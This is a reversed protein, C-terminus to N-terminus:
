KKNKEELNLKSSLLQMFEPSNYDMNYKTAYAQLVTGLKADREKINKTSQMNTAAGALQDIGTSIAGQKAAKAAKNYQAVSLKTNAEQAGLQSLIQAREGGYQNEMNQKRALAEGDARMRTGALANYNSLLNGASPAIQKINRKGTQYALENAALEPEVNYKRNKISNLVAQRYPNAYDSYKMTDEKGFLGQYINYAAPALQAATALTDSTGYKDWQRGAWNKDSYGSPNEDNYGYSNSLRPDNSQQDGINKLENEPVIPLHSPNPGYWPDEYTSFGTMGKSQAWQQMASLDELGAGKSYLSYELGDTGKEYKTIGGKAFKKAAKANAKAEQEAVLQSFKTQVKNIMLEASGKNVTSANDTLQKNYKDYMQKLKAGAEKFKKDKNYMELKGLIETGEPLNMQVGGQAHTPANDSVKHIAGDPTRFPEGKELEANPEQVMGGAAYIRKSEPFYQQFVDSDVMPINYVTGTRKDTYARSRRTLVGNTDTDSIGFMEGGNFDTTQGNLTARVNGTDPMTTIYKPKDYLVMDGATMNTDKGFTKHMDAYTYAIDRYKDGKAVSKRSVVGGDPYMMAPKSSLAANQKKNIRTNIRALQENKSAEIYQKKAEEEEKDNEFVGAAGPLFASVLRESTSYDNSLAVDLNRAPDLFGTEISAAIDNYTSNEVTGDKKYDVGSELASTGLQSVGSIAAGWPGASGVLDQSWSSGTTGYQQQEATMNADIYGAGISGVAGIASLGGSIDTSGYQTDGFNGSGSSKSGGNGGFYSSLDIGYNSKTNSALSNYQPDKTLTPTTPTGQLYDPLQSTTGTTQKQYDEIKKNFNTTETDLFSGTTGGEWYKKIKPKIRPYRRKLAKKTM